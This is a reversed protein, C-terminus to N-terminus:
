FAKFQVIGLDQVFFNDLLEWTVENEKQNTGRILM